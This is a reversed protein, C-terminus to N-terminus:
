KENILSKSNRFLLFNFRILFIILVTFMNFEMVSLFTIGYIFLFCLILLGYNIYVAWLLSELRLKAIFEDENKEKSFGALTAGAILLIGILTPYVNEIGWKLIKPQDQFFGGDYGIFIKWDFWTSNSTDIFFSVVVLVLSILFIIWGIKKCQHPFLYRTTNM